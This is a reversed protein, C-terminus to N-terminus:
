HYILRDIDYCIISLIDLHLYLLQMSLILILPLVMSVVAFIATAILNTWCSSVFSVAQRRLVTSQGLYQVFAACDVDMSKTGRGLVGIAM